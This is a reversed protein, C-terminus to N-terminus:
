LLRDMKEEPVAMINAYGYKEDSISHPVIGQGEDFSFLQYNRDQLYNLSHASDTESERGQDGVELIVIPRSKSLVKSSGKLVRTEMNETDILILDPSRNGEDVFSDVSVADVEVIRKHNKHRIRVATELVPSMRSKVSGGFDFASVEVPYTTFKVGAEPIDSLAKQIVEVQPFAVVNSKLVKATEPIPEFSYVRGTKGVLVAMRQSHEGFHAGINYACDGERTVRDLFAVVDPEWEKGLWMNSSILEPAIGNWKVKEGNINRVVEIGRTQNTLLLRAVELTRLLKISLNRREHLEAMEVNSKIRREM